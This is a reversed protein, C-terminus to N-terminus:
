RRSLSLSVPPGELRKEGKWILFLVTQVRRHPHLRGNGPALLLGVLHEEVHQAALVLRVLCPIREIDEVPLFSTLVHIRIM